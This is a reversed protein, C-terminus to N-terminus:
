ALNRGANPEAYDELSQRICQSTLQRWGPRLHRMMGRALEMRSLAAYATLRRVDVAPRALRNWQELFLARWRQAMAVDVPHEPRDGLMQLQTAFNAVDLLPDGARMRELDLLAFRDRKISLQNWHFDNHLTAPPVRDLSALTETIRSAVMNIETASQPCAFRLDDAAQRARVALDAATLKALDTLTTQHLRQLRTVIQAFVDSPDRQRLTDVLSVGRMWEVALLGHDVQGGVVPPVVFSTRDDESLAALAHHRAELVACASSAAARVAIRRKHSEGSGRNGWEARLRVVWKQEPVYRILLRQLTRMDIRWNGPEHDVWSQWVQASLDRRTFTRLGRLRRDNPFRYAEVQANGLSLLTGRRSMPTRVPTQLYILQGEPWYRNSPTTDDDLLAYVVRLYRQPHYIAEIQRAARWRARLDEDVRELQQRCAELVDPAHLSADVAALTQESPHDTSTALM